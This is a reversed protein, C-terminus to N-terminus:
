LALTSALGSDTARQLQLGAVSPGEGRAAAELASALASQRGRAENQPGANFSIGPRTTANELAQLVGPDLERGSTYMPKGAANFSTARALPNNSATRQAPGPFMAGMLQEETMFM